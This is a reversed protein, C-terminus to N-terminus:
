VQEKLWDAVTKAYYTIIFDAGARKLSLLSEMVAARENIWGNAAAAKLMAYEGSVQYAALPIGPFAQKVRYIVDAYIGAPKVMLMDAGEEVDLKAERLAEAGNAPDMQYGRRDGFQPAGEAAERFPGYLASAYKVAYSLIPIHTFGAKDLGERIAVVMGDMMGSPAIIDAGAHALSESQEALISLTADNDIGSEDSLVGCHGHDTYECLCVDAIVLLQPAIAKICRIAQQVVGDDHCSVEGHPDKKDPIGFLIVGLLGSKVISDIEEDLRDVSLQCCGPMSTIPQCINEGSKIFLPLILDNKDLVTERILARLAPTRRLRQLRLPLKLPADFM